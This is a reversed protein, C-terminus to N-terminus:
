VFENKHEFNELSFNANGIIESIEVDFIEIIISVGLSLCLFIMLNEISEIRSTSM